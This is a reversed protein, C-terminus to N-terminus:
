SAVGRGRRHHCCFPVRHKRSSLKNRAIATPTCTIKTLGFPVLVIWVVIATGFVGCTRSTMGNYTTQSRGHRLQHAKPGIRSLTDAAVTIIMFVITLNAGVESVRGVIPVVHGIHQVAIRSLGLLQGSTRKTEMTAHGDVHAVAGITATATRAGNRAHHIGIKVIAIGNHLESAIVELQLLPLGHYALLEIHSPRHIIASAVIATAMSEHAVAVIVVVHEVEVETPAPAAVAPIDDVLSRIGIRGIGHEIKNGSWHIVASRRSGGIEGDSGYRIGFEFSTEYPRIGSCGQIPGIKSGDILHHHKAVILNNLSQSVKHRSSGDLNFIGVHRTIIHIMIGHICESVTTNALVGVHHIDKDPGGAIPM